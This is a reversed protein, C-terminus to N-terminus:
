IWSGPAEVEGVQLFSVYLFRCHASVLIRRHQDGQSPGARLLLGGHLPVRGRFVRRLGCVVPVGPLLAPSRLARWEAGLKARGPYSAGWWPWWPTRPTPSGATVLRM